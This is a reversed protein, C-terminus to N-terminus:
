EAASGPDVFSPNEVWQEIMLQGTRPHAVVRGYRRIREAPVHGLLAHEQEARVPNRVRMGSRQIRGDLHKNVDWSAVGAIEYVWGGAGAWLLAGSDRTPTVLMLTAGRFASDENNVLVHDELSLSRGRAPLGHRLVERPSVATTGHFLTGYYDPALTEGAPGIAYPARYAHLPTVGHEEALAEEVASGQQAGLGLRDIYRIAASVRRSALAADAARLVRVDAASLSSASVRAGELARGLRAARRARLGRERLARAPDIRAPSVNPKAGRRLFFNRARALLTPRAPASRSSQAHSAPASVLAALLLFVLWRAM